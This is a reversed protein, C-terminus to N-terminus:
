VLCLAEKLEFDLGSTVMAWSAIALVILLQIVCTSRLESWRGIVKSMCAVEKVFRVPSLVESPVPLRGVPLFELFVGFFGRVFYWAAVVGVLQFRFYPIGNKCGSVFVYAQFFTAITSWGGKRLANVVGDVVAVGEARVFVLLVVTRCFCVYLEEDLFVFAFDPFFRNNFILVCFV